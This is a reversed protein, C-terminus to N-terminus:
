VKLKETVKTLTKGGQVLKGGVSVGGAVAGAIVSTTVGDFIDSGRKGDIANTAITSAGSTASSSAVM